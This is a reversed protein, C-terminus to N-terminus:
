WVDKKGRRDFDMQQQWLFREGSENKRILNVGGWNKSHCMMSYEWVHMAHIFLSDKTM